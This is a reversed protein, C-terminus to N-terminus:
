KISLTPPFAFGRLDLIPWKRKKVGLNRFYSYAHVQLVEYKWIWHFPRLNDHSLFEYTWKGCIQVQLVEYRWRLEMPPNFTPTWYRTDGSRLRSKFRDSPSKLLMIIHVYVILKNYYTYKIVLSIICFYAIFNPKICINWAPLKYRCFRTDVEYSWQRPDFNRM